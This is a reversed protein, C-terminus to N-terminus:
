ILHLVKLIVKGKKTNGIISNMEFRGKGRITIIDGQKILKASKYENEFNLFVRGSLIIEESKARSTKALESVINDLRLSAVTISIEEKKIEVSHINELKNIEINSKSFRTLEQINTLVYKSIENLIIIDAGNEYVVIDGIKERKIGIKMLGSLYDRHTYKNKLENPLTIQIISMIQNYNKEIINSEFKDSFFIVLKREANEYGGFCIYNQCRIQKLLKEILNIQRLDLFDTNTIKNKTTAITFKDLAKAVLLKDEENKYYKLIDQKNM